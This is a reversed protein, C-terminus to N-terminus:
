LMDTLFRRVIQLFLAPKEAHLWHGTSPIIRMVAHPFLTAVLSAYKATIYDSNGGKIFLVPGQYGHPLTGKPATQGASIAPYNAIIAALNMRWTFSAAGSKVLNKLLFQRVPLENVYNALQKEADARSALSALDLSQLGAIIAEHHPPYQVPAIDAVLLKDVVEPHNLALQMATKGGMSHGLLHAKDIGHLQMFRYVDESMLDYNMVDTHPSRGHNRLDLCYVQYDSALSRAISGLNEWSGFLGHLLIIKPGQGFSQFHLNITSM